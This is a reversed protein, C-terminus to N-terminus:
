IKFQKILINLGNSFKALVEANARVNSIGKSNDSVARNVGTINSAIESLGQASESVNRAV